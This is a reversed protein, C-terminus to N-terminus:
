DGKQKYPQDKMLEIHDSSYTEGNVTYYVGKIEEVNELYTNAVGEMVAYEGNSGMNLSYISDTFDVFVNGNSFVVSNIKIGKAGLAGKIYVENVADFAAQGSDSEETEYAQTKTQNTELDLYKVTIKQKDKYTIPEDPGPTATVIPTPTAEIEIDPIQDGTLPRAVSVTPEAEASTGSNGTQVTGSDACGCILLVAFAMVFFIIKRLKM